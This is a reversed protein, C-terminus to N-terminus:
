AQARMEFMETEAPSLQRRRSLVFVAAALGCALLADSAISSWAAGRWSYARILWLNILVNFVAVGVHIVTRLGQYGAGALMDTLFSHVVKLMPLIALWRLAEVTSHYERGLVLPVIGAGALLAVCVLTAYGLAKSVLPKAYQLTASIGGKGARFQGPYAAALLSWVPAFSVDILRYAAGYIGTAELTGLRALMAKDIDNYITQASSGVSFYLGERTEASPRSLRFAPAGLKLLVLLLAIVAVLSTSAFYFRGWELASPSHHLAALILAAALRTTSLLVNISATWQMREFAVFAQGCIGTISTGLLDSAAVFMVLPVPISKPLLLRSVSVVVGFLIGGSLLTTWLAMGWNKKFQRPDHAVNKIMLYGSGLTGFPFLIGVLGVVGVFAGYNQAGLSRAIVTFYLAQILLKLGQGCLMWGTNRALTSKLVLRLSKIKDFLPTLRSRHVESQHVILGAVRRAGM